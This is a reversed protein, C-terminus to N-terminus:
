ELGPSTAHRAAGMCSGATVHPRAVEDPLEHEFHDVVPQSGVVFQRGLSLERAGGPSLQPAQEVLQQRSSVADGDVSGLCCDPRGDHVGLVGCM